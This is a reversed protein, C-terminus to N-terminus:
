QDFVFTLGYTVALASTQFIGIAGGPPLALGMPFTWIIGQGITAPLSYGRLAPNAGLPVATTFATDITVTSAVSQPDEAQPVTSTATGTGATTIRRLELAGAVASEAFAHIEWVRADVGSPCRLGAVWAAAAGSAKSIKGAYRAM